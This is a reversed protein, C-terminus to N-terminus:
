EFIDLKLKSNTAKWVTLKNQYDCCALFVQSYRDIGQLKLEKLLWQENNGTFKLNEKLVKGDIIINSVLKEGNVPVQLEKATPPRSESKALFSIKGNTEMVASEIDSLNFFNKSRCETLFENIDLKAKMLNKEYIKGDKMLIIPQGSFFRRLKISKTNAYSIAVTILAYILMAEISRTFDEDLSIAMQAAISGISIGIIYDFMSLQSIQKKGMLKTLLFLVILSLFSSLAIKWIESWIEM